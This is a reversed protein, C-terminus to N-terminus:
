PTVNITAWGTNTGDTNIYGTGVPGVPNSQLYLSGAAAGLTLTNPDATGSYIGVGTQLLYATGATGLQVNGGVVNFNGAQVNATVGGAADSATLTIANAANGDSQIVVQNAGGGTSSLNIDGGTATQIIGATGSTIEVSGNGAVNSSISIGSGNGTTTLSIAGLDADIASTLTIADASSINVAGSAGVSGITVTGTSTGTNISTNANNNNNINTVGNITTAGTINAPGPNVTLDTFAAGGGNDIQKYVPVGAGSFGVLIWATQNATNVAVTGIGVDSATPNANLVQTIPGITLLGSKIGYAQVFNKGIAM